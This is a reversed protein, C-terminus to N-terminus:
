GEQICNEGNGTIKIRIVNFLNQRDDPDVLDNAVTCERAFKQITM